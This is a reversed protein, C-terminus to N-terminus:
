KILQQCLTPKFVLPTPELAASSLGTSDLRTTAVDARLFPTPCCSTLAHSSLTFTFRMLSRQNVKASDVYCTMLVTMTHALTAMCNYHRSASQM